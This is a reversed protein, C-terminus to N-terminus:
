RAGGAACRREEVGMGLVEAAKPCARALWRECDGALRQVDERARLWSWRAEAAWPEGVVNAIRERLGHPGHAFALMLPAVELLVRLPEPDCAPRRYWGRVEPGGGPEVEYRVGQLTFSRSNAVGGVAQRLREAGHPAPRCAGAAVVHVTGVDHPGLPELQRVWVRDQNRRVVEGLLELRGLRFLVYSSSASLTRAPEVPRSAVPEAVLAEVRGALAATAALLRRMEALVERIEENRPNM